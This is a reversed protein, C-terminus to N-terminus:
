GLDSSSRSNTKKENLVYRSTDILKAQSRAQAEYVVISIGGRRGFCMLRM